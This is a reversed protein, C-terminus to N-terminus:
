SELENVGLGTVPVRGIELKWSGVDQSTTFSLRVLKSFRALHNAKWNKCDKGTDEFRFSERSEQIGPLPTPVPM